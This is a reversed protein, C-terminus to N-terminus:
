FIKVVNEVDDWNPYVSFGFADNKLNKFIIMIHKFVVLVRGVSLFGM